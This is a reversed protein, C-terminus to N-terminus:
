AQLPVVGPSGPTKAGEHSFLTSTGDIRSAAEGGAIAGTSTMGQMARRRARDPKQGKRYRGGNRRRGTGFARRAPTEHSPSPRNDRPYDGATYRRPGGIVGQGLPEACGGCGTEAGPRTLARVHAGRMDILAGVVIGDIQLIHKGLDLEMPVHEPNSSEPVLTVYRASRRKFRKLTVDDGFRAVVVDGCKAESTAHVAVVDGDRLGTADMSDGRVTLFYSPRPRFRDAVAAPIREVVHSEAVIPEGAAM